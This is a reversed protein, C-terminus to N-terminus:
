RRTQTDDDEDDTAYFTGMGGDSDRMVSVDTRGIRITPTRAVHRPSEIMGSRRQTLEDRSLRSRGESPNRQHSVTAQPMPRNHDPSQQPGQPQLASPVLLPYAPPTYFPTSVAPSQATKTAEPVRPLPSRRPLPAPKANLVRQSTTRQPWQVTRSSGQPLIASIPPASPGRNSSTREPWQPRVQSSVARQTTLRQPLLASSATSPAADRQFEKQQLASPAPRHNIASPVRSPLPAVTSERRQSAAADYLTSSAATVPRTTPPLPWRVSPWSADSGDQSRESGTLDSGRLAPGNPPESAPEVCQQGAPLTNCSVYNDDDENIERSTEPLGLLPGFTPLCACVIGVSTEIIAWYEVPGANYSADSGQYSSTGQILFYCLRVAACVVLFVGVVYIGCVACRKIRPYSLLRDLSSPVPVTLVMIATALDTAALTDFVAGSFCSAGFNPLVDFDWFAAIPTCTFIATISYALAWLLIIFVFTFTVANFIRDGKGQVFLRRYLFLFSLKTMGNALPYLINLAYNTKRGRSTGQEPAEKAPRRPRHNTPGRDLTSAHPAESSHKDARATVIWEAHYENQMFVWAHEVM